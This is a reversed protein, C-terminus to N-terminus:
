DEDEIVMILAKQKEKFVLCSDFTSNTAPDYSGAWNNKHMDKTNTFFCAPESLRAMIANWFSEAKQVQMLDIGHAMDHTLLYCFLEKAEAETIQHLHMSSNLAHVALQNPLWNVENEPASSHVEFLRVYGCDRETDISSKLDALTMPTNPMVILSVPLCVRLTQSDLSRLSRCNLANNSHRM